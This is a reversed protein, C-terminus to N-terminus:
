PSFPLPSVLYLQRPAYEEVGSGVRLERRGATDKLRPLKRPPLPNNRGTSNYRGGRVPSPSLKNAQSWHTRKPSNAIRKMFTSHYSLLELAKDIDEKPKPKHTRTQDLMDQLAKSLFEQSINGGRKILNTRRMMLRLKSPLVDPEEVAKLEETRSVEKEKLRSVPRVPQLDYLKDILALGRKFNRPCNSLSRSRLQQEGRCEHVPRNEPPRTKDQSVFVLRRLSSGNRKFGISSVVGVSM